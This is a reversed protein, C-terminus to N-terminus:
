DLGDCSSQATCVNWGTYHQTYKCVPTLLLPVHLQIYHCVKNQLNLNAGSKVLEVVVDTKGMWAAEQLPSTGDQTICATPRICQCM